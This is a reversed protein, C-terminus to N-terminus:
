LTRAAIYDKVAAAEPPLADVRQPLSELAQFEAPIEPERGLAERITGAFKVPQATELVLLPVPLSAAYRRAVHIGDATHPDITV